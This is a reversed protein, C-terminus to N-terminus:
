NVSDESLQFQRARELKLATDRRRVFEDGSVIKFSRGIGLRLLTAWANGRTRSQINKGVDSWHNDIKRIPSAM